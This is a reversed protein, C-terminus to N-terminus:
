NKLLEDARKSPFIKWNAKGSSNDKELFYRAQKDM